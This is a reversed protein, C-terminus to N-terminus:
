VTIMKGDVGTFSTTGLPRPSQAKQRQLYSVAYVEGIRLGATMSRRTHIGAWCRGVAQHWAMLDIEAHLQSIGLSPVPGDAFTAKAITSWVGAFIAHGSPDDSHTPSGEAYVMPLYPGVLDVIWGALRLFSEHLEGRVARPWLEEPRARRYDRFKLRWGMEVAPLAAIGNACQLEAIGGADIFSQETKGPTVRSSYPAQHQVLLRLVCDGIM